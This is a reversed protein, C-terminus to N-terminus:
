SSGLNQVRKLSYLGNSCGDEDDGGEKRSQRSCRWFPGTIQQQQQLWKGSKLLFTTWWTTKHLLVFWYITGKSCDCYAWLRICSTHYEAQPLTLLQTTFTQDFSGFRTGTKLRPRLGGALLEWVLSLPGLLGFLPHWLWCVWLWLERPDPRMLAQLRLSGQAWIKTSVIPAQPSIFSSHLVGHWINSIFFLHPSSSLITPPRIFFTWQSFCASILLFLPYFHHSNIISLVCSGVWHNDFTKSWPRSKLIACM